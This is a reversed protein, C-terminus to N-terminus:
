RVIDNSLLVYLDHSYFLHDGLHFAKINICIRGFLIMHFMYFLSPFICTSVDTFEGM